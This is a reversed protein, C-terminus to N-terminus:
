HRQAIGAIAGGAVLWASNIRYRMLLVASAAALLVTPLDVIAARALQWFVSVMLAVAAAAAGDLFASTVPSRRLRTILPASAAVLLFSPLFIGATAALAGAPGGLVYGIFTATTFVPGPTVQGVAIADLLRSETLWHRRSVLEDRLFALLTYGSGFIVAGVKLFVLFLPRLGFRASPASAGAPHASLAAALAGIGLLAALSAPRRQDPTKVWAAIGAAAAAGLLILAPSVGAAALALALVGLAALARSKLATKGLGWLAQAIVAIIVPKIGLLLGAAGPLRGYRVYAAAILSVILAAPLIFCTGAVILGPWGARSRGVFIGLETSSPGPILNAAALLDVFEERTLWHRRRVFEDEMMAIHAAPGGFAITGLKLFVLALEALSTRKGPADHSPIPDAPTM